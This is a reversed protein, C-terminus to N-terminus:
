RARESEDPVLECAMKIAMEHLWAIREPLNLTKGRLSRPSGARDLASHAEDVESVSWAPGIRQIMVLQRQPSANM